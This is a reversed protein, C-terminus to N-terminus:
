GNDKGKQVNAKIKFYIPTLEAFLENYSIDNTLLFKILANFLAKDYEVEAHCKTCLTIFNSDDYDWPDNGYQYTKHHVHLTNGSEFCKTCEWADRELIQLRKKQWQPSKLKEIYTMPNFFLGLAPFICLPQNTVLRIFEYQVERETHITKWIHKL